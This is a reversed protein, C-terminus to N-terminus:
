LLHSRVELKLDRLRAAERAVEDFDPFLHSKTIGEAILLRYLERCEAVPLTLKRTRFDGFCETLSPWRGNRLFFNEAGAVATFVGRQAHLRPNSSRPVQILAPYWAGCDTPDPLTATDIAWVAIHSPREDPPKELVGTVAFCAAVRADATWDLLRTPAGHHQAIGTAPSRVWEPLENSHLLSRYVDEPNLYRRAWDFGAIEPQDIPLGRANAIECFECLATYEASQWAAWGIADPHSRRWSLWSPTHRIAHEQETRLALIIPHEKGGSRWAKPILEWDADAHGRFLWRCGASKNSTWYSDSTRLKGLFEEATYIHRVVPKRAKVQHRAAELSKPVVWDAFYSRVSEDQAWMPEDALLEPILHAMERSRRAVASATKPCARFALDALKRLASRSDATAFEAVALRLQQADVEWQSAAEDLTPM